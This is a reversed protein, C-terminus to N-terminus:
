ACVHLLELHWEAASVAPNAHHLVDIVHLLAKDLATDLDTSEVEHFVVSEPAFKKYLANVERGDKDQDHFVVRFYYLRTRPM